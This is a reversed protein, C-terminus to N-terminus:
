YERVTTCDMKLHELTFKELELFTREKEMFNEKAIIGRTDSGM